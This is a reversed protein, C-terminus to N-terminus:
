CGIGRLMIRYGARLTRKNTTLELTSIQSNNNNDAEKASETETRENAANKSQSRAEASTMRMCGDMWKLM